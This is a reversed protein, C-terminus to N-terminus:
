MAWWSGTVHGVESRLEGWKDSEEALSRLGVGLNHMDGADLDGGGDSSEAGMWKGATSGVTAVAAAAARFAGGPDGSAQSQTFHHHRSAEFQNEENAQAFLLSFSSHTAYTTGASATSVLVQEPFARSLILLKLHHSALHHSRTYFTHHLHMTCPRAKTVATCLTYDHEQMQILMKLFIDYLVLGTADNFLSEGELLASFVEPAGGSKLANTMGRLCPLPCRQPAEQGGQRLASSVEPAGGLKLANTVAVADTSAVMACFLAAHVWNWGEAELNLGYLRCFARTNHLITDGPDQSDM